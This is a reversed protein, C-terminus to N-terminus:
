RLLRNLIKSFVRLPATIEWSISHLLKTIELSALYESEPIILIEETQNRYWSILKRLIRTAKWSKSNYYESLKNRYYNSDATAIEISYKELEEFWWGVLNKKKEKILQEAIDWNKNKKFHNKRDLTGDIVTNTGDNRICYEAGTVPVYLPPHVAALYLLFDYDEHRSLREDVRGLNPIRQRNLVFSHIPIFNSKLHHIFSYSSRHFPMSRSILQGHKNYLARAIDCYAWAYDSSHLSNILRSYHEPYVKDDDDLFAIYNGNAQDLGLNLSRARADSQSFHTLFQLNSFYPQWLQILAQLKDFTENEQTNQAVLVIEIKKYKQWSLNLLCCDLFRERGPMTRIIVTLLDDM